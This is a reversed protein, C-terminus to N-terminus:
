SGVGDEWKFAVQINEERKKGERVRQSWIIQSLFKSGSKPNKGERPDKTKSITKIPAGQLELNM